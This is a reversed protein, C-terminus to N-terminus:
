VVATIGGDVYIVHGTVFSAADSALYVAAGALEEVRGWRGLPTRGAVWSSFKEDEVLATNMETAFYGPGIGNVRIGHKGWEAAMGKTMMKVAGKSATYPVITPRGLESMVSCTNVISGRRRPIMRRAVARSLYFVSDVNTTMVAHWGDDTFDELPTRRQIGANNVLIDIPGCDAEIREVAADVAASSTVDFPAEFIKFGEQRFAEAATAVKASDRGNLVVTAGASALGRAMAHGLGQSSGSVLAIRGDLRFLDLTSTSM